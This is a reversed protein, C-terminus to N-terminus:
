GAGGYWPWNLYHYVRPSELEWERVAAAIQAVADGDTTYHHVNVKFDFTSLLEDYELEL